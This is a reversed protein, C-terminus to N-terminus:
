VAVNDILRAKGLWAAALVRGPRSRDEYAGLTEGDRVSMYEIKHFGAKLLRASAARCAAEADGGAAAAASVETISAYLGAARAREDASLYRNRSSMALGDAERVTPAGIIETPIDLDRAMRRIVLLQQYDKEGFVAVDAMAQILLKSVVTAVGIFFHPRFEGELVESLGEVHVKTAHGEPYVESAPPAFLLGAGAGAFMGRDADENRPYADFDEGPAFQFPNVFLTAVVRDSKETALRVLSVHGEHLGGM